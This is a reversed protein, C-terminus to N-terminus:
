KGYKKIAKKIAMNLHYKDKYTTGWCHKQFREKLSKITQGVYIKGNVKNTIKYIKGKM